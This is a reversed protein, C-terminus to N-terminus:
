AVTLKGLNCSAVMSLSPRLYTGNLNVLQHRNKQWLYAEGAIRALILTVLLQLLLLSSLHAAPIELGVLIALAAARLVNGM